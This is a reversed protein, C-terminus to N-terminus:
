KVIIKKGNKIYVGKPLSSIGKRSVLTGNISYVEAGETVVKVNTISTPIDVLRINVKASSAEGYYSSLVDRLDFYCRYAKMTTKGVSYWFENDTIFLKEEPVIFGAVYNGRMRGTKNTGKVVTKPDITVNDIEFETINKTTKIIYPTNAELGNDAQLRNFNITISLPNGDEDTDDSPEYSDYESILVDDGFAAKVQEGTM